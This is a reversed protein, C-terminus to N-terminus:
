FLTTEARLSRMERVDWECKPVYYACENVDNEGIIMGALGM